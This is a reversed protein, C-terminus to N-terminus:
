KLKDPEAVLLPVALEEAALGGHYGTLRKDMFRSILLRGPDALWVVEPLRASLDEHDPGPGLRTRFEAPGIARGPLGALTDALADDVRRIMVARPDGYFEPGPRHPIFAKDQEAYDILGHDATGVM